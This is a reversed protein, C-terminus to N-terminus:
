LHRVVADVENPSGLVVSTRQHLDRPTIDMIRQTGAMAKGGAQEIIMAMPNAEYMLRLKGEPNKQTPPYMFVGGQVLIRHVDAVMTGVYRSSYGNDHAWDLYKQYGEPFSARYAENISYSKGAQPIKISREVLVFAGISPDLVFLNVGNGTTFVFVTSSGYLIYGAAVQKSGPQLLSTEIPDADPIHRLISFITGVSVCADLNSSGDLPDFLVCYAEDASTRLISPKDNEESALLAVAARSGLARLLVNNSLMDLKQQMEGQVNEMGIAGLVDEIRARRIKSAIVKASFSMASLIWSFQGTAGPYRSEEALIHQELTIINDVGNGLPPTLRTGDSEPAQASM